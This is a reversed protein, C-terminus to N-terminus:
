GTALYVGSASMGNSDDQSAGNGDRLVQTSLLSWVDNPMCQLVNRITQLYYRWQEADEQAAHTEQDAAAPESFRVLNQLRTIIVCFM